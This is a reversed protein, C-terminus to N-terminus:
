EKAAETSEDFAYKKEGAHIALKLFNEKPPLPCALKEDYHCWPNYARNFDLTVKGENVEEMKFGLYRGGKYTTGGNTLDRFPIFYFDPGEYDRKYVAVRHAKEENNFIVWAYRLFPAVGGTTTVMKVPTEESAVEFDCSFRYRPDARYFRLRSLDDDTRIPSYEKDLFRAFFDTRFKTIEDQYKKQKEAENEAPVIVKSGSNLTADDGYGPLCSILACLICARYPKM